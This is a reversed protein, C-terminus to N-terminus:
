RSVQERDAFVHLRKNEREVIGNRRGLASEVDYLCNGGGIQLAQLLLRRANNDKEPSVRSRFLM